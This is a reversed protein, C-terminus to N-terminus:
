DGKDSQRSAIVKMWIWKSIYKLHDFIFRKELTSFCDFNRLIVIWFWKRIVLIQVETCFLKKGILAKSMEVKFSHFSTNPKSCLCLVSSSWWISNQAISYTSRVGCTWWFDYLMLQIFKRVWKPISGRLFIKSGLISSSSKVSLM